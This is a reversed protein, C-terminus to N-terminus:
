HSGPVRSPSGMSLAAVTGLAVGAGAIFGFKILLSRVQRQKPPAIAAGAPRSAANGTTTIAPAAATGSPQTPTGTQPSGSQQPSSAPAQQPTSSNQSQSQSTSPSDPLEAILSTDVEPNATVSKDASTMNQALVAAPDMSFILVALGASLWRGAVREM